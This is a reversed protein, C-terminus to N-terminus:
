PGGPTDQTDGGAVWLTSLCRGAVSHAPVTAHKRQRQGRDSYRTGGWSQGGRRGEPSVGSSRLLWPWHLPAELLGRSSSSRLPQGCVGGSRRSPRGPLTRPCAVTQNKQNRFNVENEQLNWPKKNETKALISPAPLLRLANPRLGWPTLQHSSRAQDQGHGPETCLQGGCAARM